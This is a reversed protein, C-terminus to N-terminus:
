LEGHFWRVAKAATHDDVRFHEAIAHFAIGAARMEAAQAAIRQYVPTTTPHRLEVEFPLESVTRLRQTCRWLVLGHTKLLKCFCRLPEGLGVTVPTSEADVSPTCKGKLITGM